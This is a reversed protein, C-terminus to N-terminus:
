DEVTDTGSIEFKIAGLRTRDGEANTGFLDWADVFGGM